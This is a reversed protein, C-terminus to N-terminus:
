QRSAADLSGDADIRAIYNVEMENYIKFLGGAYYDGSGDRAPVITTIWSDLGSPEHFNPVRAGHRNLRLLRHSPMTNTDGAVYVDGSGDGASSIAFVTLAVEPVFTDDLAGTEHVRIVGPIVPQGDYSRIHGGAYIDHTGDHAPVVILVPPVTALAPIGSGIHFTSDITGDPNLRLLSSVPAGNYKVFGGGVYLRGSRDPALALSRVGVNVEPSSELGTGVVFARDLTGDANLRAIRNVTTGDYTTFNGAVYLDGSGDDAAALALPNFNFGTGPAFASDLSGDQNLRAIHPAPEGRYHQFEGVAYLDGTGDGALAVAMVRDDFGQAFSAAMNGDAHLRVIRNVPTNDYGTFDGAVYVDRSGDPVPVISRVVGNFGSGQSLGTDPANTIQPPV